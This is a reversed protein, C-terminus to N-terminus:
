KHQPISFSVADFSFYIHSLLTIKIQFIIELNSFIMMKKIAIQEM